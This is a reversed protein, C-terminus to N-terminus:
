KLGIILSIPMIDATLLYADPDNRLISKPSKVPPSSIM